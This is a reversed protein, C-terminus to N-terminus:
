TAASPGPNPTAPNAGAAPPRRALGVRAATFASGDWRGRVVVRAGVVLKSPVARPDFRTSSTIQVKFVRDGRTQITWTSGSTSTITGRLERLQRVGVRLSNAQATTSPTQATGPPSASARSPSGATLAGAAMGGGLAVVAAIATMVSQRRHSRVYDFFRRVAHM